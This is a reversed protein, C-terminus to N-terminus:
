HALQKSRKENPKNEQQSGQKSSNLARALVAMRIAVGNHVQAAILSRTEDNALAESIEVGYNVPGPHLVRVHPAAYRALRAHNVQFRHAYDAMSALLGGQQRERQLRLSIVADAGELAAEIRNVVTVGPYQDLGAPLLTAPGTIVVNAGFLPLFHLNARAVRSHAIDGVLAIKKGKLSNDFADLLTLLDLLGQTPHDHAGDGANILAIRHGLQRALYAHIQSTKHRLVVAAIDLDALTRVTDTLTEGKSLSSTSADLTLVEAGLRRAAVEFSARTRTSNEAFLLGVQPPAGLKLATGPGGDRYSRAQALLLEVAQRDLDASALLHKPASAM